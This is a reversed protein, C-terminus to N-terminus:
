LSVGPLGLWQQSLFAWWLPIVELSGNLACQSNIRIPLLGEPILTCLDSIAAPSMSQTLGAKQWGKGPQTEKVCSYFSNSLVVVQRIPSKQPNFNQTGLHSSWLFGEWTKGSERLFIRLKLNDGSDNVWHWIQPLNKSDLLSCSLHMEQGELPSLYIVWRRPKWYDMSNWQIM